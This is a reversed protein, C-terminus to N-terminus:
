DRSDRLGLVPKGGAFMLVNGGYTTALLDPVFVESVPGCAVVRRNLLLVHNFYRPATNLDHHVVVVAGGQERVEDLERMIVSESAADVGALPEDLLYLAAEQALARALFTRQQQGGSLDSIRREALEALGVRELVERAVARDARGPRAWWPAHAYRGMLVVDFVSAPFDWDVSSRQPVYAVQKRCERLSGGLLSVQGTAGELLGLVAKLLTSKGAGNPGIVGTMTGMPLSFNVGELVLHGPYGARLDVVRMAEVPAVTADTM